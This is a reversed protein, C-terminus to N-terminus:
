NKNNEEYTKLATASYLNVATSNYKKYQKKKAWRM